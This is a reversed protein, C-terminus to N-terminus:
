KQLLHSHKKLGSSSKKVETTPSKNKLLTNNKKEFATCIGLFQAYQIGKVAILLFRNGNQYENSNFKTTPDTVLFFSVGTKLRLL